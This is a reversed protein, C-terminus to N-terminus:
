ELLPGFNYDDDDLRFVLQLKHKRNKAEPNFSFNWRICNFCNATLLLNFKKETDYIKIEKIYEFGKETESKEVTGRLVFQSELGFKCGYERIRIKVVKNFDEKDGVIEAHLIGM